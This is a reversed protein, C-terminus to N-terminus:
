HRLTSSFLRKPATQDNAPAGSATQKLTWLDAPHKTENSLSPYFLRQQPRFRHGWPKVAAELLLAESEVDVKWPKSVLSFTFLYFLYIVVFCCQPRAATLLAKIYVSPSFMLDPLCSFPQFAKTSMLAVGLPADIAARHSRGAPFGLVCRRLQQEFLLASPLVPAVRRVSIHSVSTTVKCSAVKLEATDWGIVSIILFIHLYCLASAFSIKVLRRAEQITPQPKTLLDMLVVCHKMWRCPLVLILLLVSLLFTITFCLFFKFLMSVELRWIDGDMSGETVKM